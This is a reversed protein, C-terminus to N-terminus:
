EYLSKSDYTQQLCEADASAAILEDRQLQKRTEKGSSMLKLLVKIAAQGRYKRQPNQQCM